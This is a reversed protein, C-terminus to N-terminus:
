VILTQKNRFSQLEKKISIKAKRRDAKQISRNANKIELKMAKTRLSYPIDMSDLYTLKGYNRRNDALMPKMKRKKVWKKDIIGQKGKHPKYLGIFKKKENITRSM